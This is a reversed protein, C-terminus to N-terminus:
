NLQASSLLKGKLLRARLLNKKTDTYLHTFVTRPVNITNKLVFGLDSSERHDLHITPKFQNLSFITMGESFM